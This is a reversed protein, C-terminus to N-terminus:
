LFSADVEAGDVVQHRCRFLVRLTEVLMETEHAQIILHEIDGPGAPITWRRWVEIPVSGPEIGVTFPPPGKGPWQPHGANPAPLIRAVAERKWEPAGGKSLQARDDHDAVREFDDGREVAEIAKGRGQGESEPADVGLADERV